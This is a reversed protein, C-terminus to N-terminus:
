IPTLRAREALEGLDIEAGAPLSVIERAVAFPHGARLMAALAKERQKPDGTAAEAFPGLRRRRAFHLAAALAERDAHDHAAESHQQEVGASRLTQLVRRKGYGRGTLAQSKALAFAADDIYGQEAFDNAIAELNAENQDDWGRERIKRALYSRLKARTTAFRGVYALALEDLKRRDLPSARRPAM